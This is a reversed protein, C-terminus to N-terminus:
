QVYVFETSNLLVWCVHLLGRDRAAATSREAEKDTPARGIAFRYAAQVARSVDSDAAVMARDALHKAQRQVFSNNMLELAQLPTITVGRRPTKVAPDPCDFADLLPDKGSNVNTRYVTRRNFQPEVRDVLQYFDSGHSSITFPKFGPGGIIPNLEGSAVLMADRVAEAELRRPSYRWLFQNDADIAAAEARFESSQRYTASQVILRHLAKVSWGSEMFTVALWDLLEPHSPAAGSVGFDNPTAVIGQGFHLYWVRNVMVRAPLPNQSDTLWEAFKLRRQAEPADAELGFNSEVAVVASLAGPTVTHQPSKVDGRSLFRTPAPQKRIGVYSVSQKVPQQLSTREQMLLTLQAQAASRVLRTKAPMQQILDSQSISLGASRFSAAVEADSLARDYIAAQRIAGTLFGGGGTHRMGLLIHADGAQFVQLPSPPTYPQGYPEGNRFLAITNDARYVIAMHIFENLASSEAPADVDQTRAFGDSGAMWLRPNREGFVIADFHSGSSDEISIAAGGSQQLDSLSVWAELTKEAIDKTLAATQFFSGSVPLLLQGGDIAAGGNLKGLAALQDTAGAFSWRVLAAPGAEPQAPTTNAAAFAQLAEAEIAAIENSVRAIDKNLSALRDTRDQERGYDAHLGREGHRVGEFVSKIRYYDEQPIPDFKHSHCRACNITLGIFTQGIVGIIDELEDERTIMKQTANSQSNGAQDWPGCVLLSCAILGESSTPELVDGAIQQKMFRDYPKDDNFSRIVYDRYHWANNRLRDYEFGQSETYRAVDLWHRGWREGYHPSALLREVLKEYADSSNDGLFDAVEEPSPPLGILDFSLRRILTQRDAAKALSLGRETLKTQVFADIPTKAGANVPVAPKKLPSFSWHDSQIKAVEGLDPWQAGQDIWARLLGIEYVTLPVGKPPMPNDRELGSVLHILRSEASKGPEIVKGSDGGTMSPLKADLRLGGEQKEAGHCKVCRVAFLPQIDRPFDATVKAAAPLKSVDLSDVAHAFGGLGLLTALLLSGCRRNVILRMVLM